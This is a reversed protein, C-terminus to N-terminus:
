KFKLNSFKKSICIELFRKIERERILSLTKKKNCSQSFIKVKYHTKDTM